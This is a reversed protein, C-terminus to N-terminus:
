YCISVTCQLLSESNSVSGKKVTRSKEKQREGSVEGYFGICTCGNNRTSNYGEQVNLIHFAKSFFKSKM